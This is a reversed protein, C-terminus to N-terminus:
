AEIRKFEDYFLGAPPPTIGFISKNRDVCELGIHGEYETGKEGMWVVRYRAQEGAHDLLLITEVALPPLGRLRAGYAAIEITFTNQSFPNGFIDKGLVTVPRCGPMRPEKRIGTAWGPKAGASM